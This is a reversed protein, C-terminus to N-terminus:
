KLLNAHYCLLLHKLFERNLYLTKMSIAFAYYVKATDM